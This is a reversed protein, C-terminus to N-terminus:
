RTEHIDSIFVTCHEDRYDKQLIQGYLKAKQKAQEENEADFTVREFVTPAYTFNFGVRIEFKKM